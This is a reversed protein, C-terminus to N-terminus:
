GGDRNTYLASIKLIARTERHSGVNFWVGKRHHKLRECVAYDNGGPFARDGVFVIYNPMEHEMIWDVSQSKDNGKPYIDVSIKGGVSADLHPYMNKIVEVM